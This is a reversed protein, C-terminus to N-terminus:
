AEHPYAGSPFLQKDGEHVQRKRGPFGPVDYCIPKETGPPHQRYASCSATACGVAQEAIYYFEGIGETLLGTVHLVPRWLSELEKANCINHKCRFKAQDMRDMAISLVTGDTLMGLASEESLKGLRAGM